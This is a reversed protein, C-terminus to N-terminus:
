QQEQQQAPVLGMNYRFWRGFVDRYFTYLSSGIQKSHENRLMIIEEDSLRVPEWTELGTSWVEYM